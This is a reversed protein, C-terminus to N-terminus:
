KKINKYYTINNLKNFNEININGDEYFYILNSGGLLSAFLSFSSHKQSLIITECRSMMYIDIYTKEYLEKFNFNDVNYGGYKKLYKDKEIIDDSAIYLSKNDILLDNLINNTKENLDNIQEPRLTVSCSDIRVKDQRRLHLAINPKIDGVLSLLLETPKFERLTENFATIFNDISIKDYLYKQHFNHPSCVGGLIQDFIIFNDIPQNVYVNKPLIFYKSFNEYLYDVFRIDEWKRKENENFDWEHLGGNTFVKWDFYLNANLVKAYTSMISIDILRDGLGSNPSSTWLINM